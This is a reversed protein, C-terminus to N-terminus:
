EKKRLRVQDFSMKGEWPYIRFYGVKDVIAPYRLKERGDMYVVCDGDGFSLILTYDDRKEFTSRKDTKWTTGELNHNSLSNIRCDFFVAKARPEYELQLYLTAADTPHIRVSIADYEGKPFAMLAKDSPNMLIPEGSRGNM